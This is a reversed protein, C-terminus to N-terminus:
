RESAEVMKMIEKMARDSMLLSIETDGIYFYAEEIYGGEADESYYPDATIIPPSYPIYRYEVRVEVGEYIITTEKEMKEEEPHGGANRIIDYDSTITWCILIAALARSLWRLPPAGAM